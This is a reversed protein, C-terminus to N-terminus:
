ATIRRLEDEAHEFVRAAKQLSLIAETKCGDTAASWARYLAREGPSFAGLVRAFEGLGYADALATRNELFTTVPGTTIQDIRRHLEELPLSDVEAALSKAASFTERLASLAVQLSGGSSLLAKREQHLSLYRLAIGVALVGFSVGCMLFDIQCTSVWRRVEPDTRAVGLAAGTTGLVIAASSVVNLLKIV